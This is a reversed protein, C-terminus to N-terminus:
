GTAAGVMRLAIDAHLRAVEEDTWQGGPKFWYAVYTAQNMMAMALMRLDDRGGARSLPFSATGGERLIAVVADRIRRRSARIEQLRISDLWEYERNAVLAEVRKRAHRLTYAYIFARLREVPKPGAAALAENCERELGTQTSRIITALLDEKSAFHNYLAGQTLGCARMVDRVTTVQFGRSAFLDFAAAEIQDAPPVPKKQPSDPNTAPRQAM